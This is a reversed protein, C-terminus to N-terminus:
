RFHLQRSYYVKEIRYQTDSNWENEVFYSPITYYKVSFELSPVYLSVLIKFAEYYEYGSILVTPM